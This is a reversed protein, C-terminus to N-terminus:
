LKKQESREWFSFPNKELIGVAADRASKAAIATEKLLSECFDRLEEDDTDNVIRALLEADSESIEFHVRLTAYENQRNM